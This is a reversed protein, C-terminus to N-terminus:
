GGFYQHAGIRGSGVGSLGCGSCTISRVLTAIVSAEYGGNLAKVAAVKMDWIDDRQAAVLDIQEAFGGAAVPAVYLGRDETSQQFPGEVGAFAVLKTGM